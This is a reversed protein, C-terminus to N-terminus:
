NVKEDPNVVGTVHALAMASLIALLAWVLNVAVKM